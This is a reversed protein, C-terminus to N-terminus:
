LNDLKEEKQTNKNKYIIGLYIKDNDGKLMLYIETNDLEWGSQYALHGISIARGREQYDDQHSDNYWYKKDEKPEGYKKILLEKLKDYDNIYENENENTYEGIEIFKDQEIEGEILRNQEIERLLKESSEINRITEKYSVRNSLRNIIGWVILTLFTIILIEM